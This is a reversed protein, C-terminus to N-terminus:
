WHFATAVHAIILKNARKGITNQQELNKVHAQHYIDETELRRQQKL